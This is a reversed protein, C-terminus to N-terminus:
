WGAPVDVTGVNWGSLSVVPADGHLDSRRYTARLTESEGPWLTVDNESWTIPVVENDGAAPVGTASGRRVDARLFFAVTPNTSTNTVTVDTEQNSNGADWVPHSHATVQVTAPALHQLASLNAYQSMTAQPYDGALTASWDVVDQQTSLWYVNRDVLSGNQKLQLEVFYTEVPSTPVKPTLVSTRV